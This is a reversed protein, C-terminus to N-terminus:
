YDNSHEAGSIHLNQYAQTKPSMHSSPDQNSDSNYHKESSRIVTHIIPDNTQVERPAHLNRSTNNSTLNHAATHRQSDPCCYRERSHDLMHTHSDNPHEERSTHLHTHTQNSPLTHTSSASHFDTSFHGERYNHLASSEDSNEPIPQKDCVSKAQTSSLSAQEIAPQNYHFGSPASEMSSEITKLSNMIEQSNRNTNNLIMTFCDRQSEHFQKMMDTMVRRMGHLLRDAKQQDRDCIKTENKRPMKICRIQVEEDECSNEHKEVILCDDYIERDNEDANNDDRQGDTKSEAESDSCNGSSHDSQEEQLGPNNDNEANSEIGISSEDQKRKKGRTM